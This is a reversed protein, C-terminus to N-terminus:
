VHSLSDIKTQLNKRLESDAALELAQQYLDIATTNDGLTYSIEAMTELTNISEISPDTSPSSDEMPTLEQTTITTSNTKIRKLAEEFYELAKGKNKKKMYMLGMNNHIFPLSPHNHALKCLYHYYEEGNDKEPEVAALYNAFTLWTLRRGIKLQLQNKVYQMPDNAYELSVRWIGDPTHDVSVLRFLTGMNFVVCDTNLDVSSAHESLNLKLFMVTLQNNAARRCLDAMSSFSKSAITFTQLSFLNNLNNKIMELEENSALQIRYVITPSLNIRRQLSMLHENIEKLKPASEELTFRDFRQFLSYIMANGEILRSLLRNNNMILTSQTPLQPLIDLFLQSCLFDIQYQNLHNLINPQYKFTNMRQKYYRNQLYFCIDSTLQELLGENLNFLGSLKSYTSINQWQETPNRDTVIYVAHVSESNVLTQIDIFDNMSIILFIIPLADAEIAHRCDEVNHYENIQIKPHTLHFSRRQNLHLLIICFTQLDNESIHQIPITIDSQTSQTYLEALLAKSRSWRSPRQVILQIDENIRQSLDSISSDQDRIKIYDHTWDLSSEDDPEQYVYIHEIYPHDHILPVVFDGCKNSVTFYILKDTTLLLKSICECEDDFSTIEIPPENTFVSNLPLTVKLCVIGLNVNRQFQITRLSAELIRSTKHFTSSLSNVKMSSSKM